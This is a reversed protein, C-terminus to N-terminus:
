SASVFLVLARLCSSHPAPSDREGERGGRRRRDQERGSICTIERPSVVPVRARNWPWEIIRGNNLGRADAPLENGDDKEDKDEADDNVGEGVEEEEEAEKEEETFCSAGGARNIGALASLESNIGGHNRQERKAGVVDARRLGSKGELTARRGEVGGGIM